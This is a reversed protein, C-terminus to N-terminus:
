DNSKVELKFLDVLGQPNSMVAFIAPIGVPQAPSASITLSKPNDIFASVAAPVSSQLSQLGWQSLMLPVMGKISNRMQEESMGNEKAAHAILNNTLSDDEFRLSLSNISLRQGLGILGLTFETSRRQEKAEQEPTANLNQPKPALANVKKLDEMFDATYGSMSFKTEFTGIGDMDFTIPNLDLLGTAITYIGSFDIDGKFSDIKLDNLLATSKATSDTTPIDLDFDAITGSTQFTGAAQDASTAMEIDGTSFVLKGAQTVRLGNLVGNEAYPTTAITRNDSIAPIHLNTTKSPELHIVPGDTEASIDAAETTVTGIRYGGDVAEVDEFTVLGFSVDPADQVKMKTNEFRITDGDVTITQPALELQNLKLAANFKALFDQQDLAFSPTAWLVLSSTALLFSRPTFYKM